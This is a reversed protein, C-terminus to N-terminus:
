LPEGRFYHADISHMSASCAGDTKVTHLLLALLPEWKQHTFMSELKISIGDRVAQEEPPMEARRDVGCM